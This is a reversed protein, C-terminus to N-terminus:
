YPPTMPNLPYIVKRMLPDIYMIWYGFGNESEYWTNFGTVGRFPHELSDFRGPVGYLYYKIEKEDRYIGFLYHSYKKILAHCTAVEQMFPYNDYTNFLYNYFPLFGRHINGGDYNIEWWDYGKLEIRFPNVYPFFRLISLIYESMQEKYDLRKMYEIHNQDYNPEIKIDEEAKEFELEKIPEEEIEEVEKDIKVNDVKYDDNAGETFAEINDEEFKEETEEVKEREEVNNMEYDKDIDETFEEVNDEEFEEEIEEVKENEEVNNMKYDNDIDEIFEEVNDEELEEEIEEVKENEEVNNMKYDNDIDEIFEEVNDEKLEEEIKEVKENEEVNDEKYDDDTDEVNIEEFKEEYDLPSNEMFIEPEEEVEKLNEELEEKEDLKESIEEKGEDLMEREDTLDSIYQDVVGNDKNIYGTLLVNIGKRIVLANFKDISYNSREINRPNFKKEFRGKGRSNTIIRGLNVEIIDGKELGVLYITYSSEKEGKDVNISIKGINERAELLGHGKPRIRQINTFEEKLIFFKRTYVFSESM